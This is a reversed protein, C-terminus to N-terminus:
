KIGGGKVIAQELNKLLEKAKKKDASSLNLENQSLFDLIRQLSKFLSVTLNKKRKDSDVLPFARRIKELLVEKTEGQYNQIIKEKLDISGFRSALTYAAQRPMADLKPILNQSLQQYLEFYQLFNYPTQRNGYTQILWFTFAGEKYKKLIAQAKKIREGHLIIAQNNIAKVESTISALHVFDQHTDYSEEKYDELLEKLFVQEESSLPTVKFVGAFSSLNGNSSREALSSMKSSKESSARLRETLLTNVKSM